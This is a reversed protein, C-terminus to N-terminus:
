RLFLTRNCNQLAAGKSQTTCLLNSPKLDRYVYGKKHLLWLLGAVQEFMGELEESTKRGEEWWQNLTLCREVILHPPLLVGAPSQLAGDSNPDAAYLFPMTKCINKDCFLALQKDFDARNILFKVAYHTHGSAGQRAFNVICSKGVTREDTLIFGGTLSCPPNSKAVDSLAKCLTAEQMMQDLGPLKLPKNEEHAPDPAATCSCLARATPPQRHAPGRGSAADRSADSM